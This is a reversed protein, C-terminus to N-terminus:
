VSIAGEMTVSKVPVTAVAKAYVMISATSVNCAYIFVFQNNAGDWRMQSNYFYQPNSIYCQCYPSKSVDSDFKVTIKLYPYTSSDYQLSGSGDCLDLVGLGREHVQKMALLEGRISKIKKTLTVGDM